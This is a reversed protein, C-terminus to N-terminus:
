GADENEPQGPKLVLSVDGARISGAMGYSSDWAVLWGSPDRNVELSSIIAPIAPTADSSHEFSAIGKFVFSIVCHKSTKFYGQDDTENWDTVWGHIRLEGDIAGSAPTRLVYFDHFDIWAGWWAVVRDSGEIGPTTTM